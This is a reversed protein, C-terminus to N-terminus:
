AIQLIMSIEVELRGPKWEGPGPSMEQKVRDSPARKGGSKAQATPFEANSAAQSPNENNALLHFTNLWNAEAYNARCSTEFCWELRAEEPEIRLYTYWGWGWWTM